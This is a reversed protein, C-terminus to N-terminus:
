IIDGQELVRIGATKLADTVKQPDDVRVIVTAFGAEPTLFAYAYEINQGADALARMIKAFNGQEDPISVVMVDIISVSIHNELLVEEAKEPDNVIMRLIGFDTTDSIAFARINVGAENLYDAIEALKGVQNEVFVSIQKVAM